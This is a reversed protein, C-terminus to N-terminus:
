KNMKKSTEQLAMLQYNENVEQELRDKKAFYEDIDNIEVKITAHPVQKQNTQEGRKAEEERVWRYFAKRYEIVEKELKRTAEIIEKL